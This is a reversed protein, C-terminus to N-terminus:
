NSWKNLEKMLQEQKSRNENVKNEYELVPDFVNFVVNEYLQRNDSIDVQNTYIPESIYFEQRDIIIPSEGVMVTITDIQAVIIDEFTAQVDISQEKQEAVVIDQPQEEIFEIDQEENLFMEEEVFQQEEDFPEDEFSEELFASPEEFQEDPIEDEYSEMPIEEYSVDSSLPLPEEYFFIEEVDYDISEAQIDMSESLTFDFQEDALFTEFGVDINIDSLSPDLEVVYEEYTINLSPNKLDAATHGTGESLFSFTSTITYDLNDNDGIIITNSGMSGYSCNNWTSCTGSLTINQETVEDSDSVIKLTSTVNQQYDNWLWVDGELTATFGSNIEPTLLHDSLTIESEVYKNPEGAIIFDGHRSQLNTGSWTEDAFNDSLINGTEAANAQSSWLTMVFVVNAMVSFFTIIGLICIILIRM